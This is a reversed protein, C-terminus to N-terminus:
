KGVQTEQSTKKVQGLDGGGRGAAGLCCSFDQRNKSLIAWWSIGICDVYDPGSKLEDCVTECWQM